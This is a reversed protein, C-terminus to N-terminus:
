CFWHCDETESPGLRLPQPPRIASWNCPWFPVKGMTVDIAPALRKVAPSLELTSASGAM